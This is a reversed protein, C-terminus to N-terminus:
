EDDGSVSLIWTWPVWSCIWSLSHPHQEKFLGDSWVTVNSHSCPKAVAHLAKNVLLGNMCKFALCPRQSDSSANRRSRRVGQRIKITTNSFHINLIIVLIEQILDMMLTSQTSMKGNSKWIRAMRLLRLYWLSLKPIQFAVRPTPLLTSLRKDVDPMVFGGVDFIPDFKLLAIKHLRNNNMDNLAGSWATKSITVNDDPRRNAVQVTSSFHDGSSRDIEGGFTGRDWM